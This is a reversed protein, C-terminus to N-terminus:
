IHNQYLPNNEVEALWLPWPKVAGSITSRGADAAERESFVIFDESQGGAMALADKLIRANQATYVSRAIVMEISSGVCVFGHGRMLAVHEKPLGDQGEGLAKALSAGMKTDRVLMHQVLEPDKKYETAPDWVPVNTGLFGSMHFCARLPSKPSISFPVVDLNHSHVVAMVQPYAKYVESHIYRESFGRPTDEKVGEGDAVKYLWLDERNAVMPPAMYRCMLFADDSVRVSLHGYADVLGHYHLIHCGDVYKRLLQDSLPEKIQSKQAM